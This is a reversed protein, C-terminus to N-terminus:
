AALINPPGLPLCSTTPGAGTTAWYRQPMGTLLDDVHVYTCVYTIFITTYVYIVNSKKTTSLHEIYAITDYIIPTILAAGTTVCSRRPM